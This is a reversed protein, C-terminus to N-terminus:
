GNSRLCAVPIRDATQFVLQWAAPLQLEANTASQGAVPGVFKTGNIHILYRCRDYIQLDNIDKREYLQLSAVDIQDGVQPKEGWGIVGPGFFYTEFVAGSTAGARVLLSSQYLPINQYRELRFGTKSPPDSSFAEADQTKLAAHVVPHVLMAGTSLGDSLEGLLAITANIAGIDALNATVAANGDEIFIDKRNTSAAGAVALAGGTAMVGRVVALATKQRQKQRRLALQKLIGGVPDDGSVAASLATVSWAKERNLIPAVNTGAGLKDLAPATQEVQPADDQDTIDKFFPLNATKGGGQAIADLVASRVVSGSTIFAPFIRAGEDVGRVWIDPTWLDAIMTGAM